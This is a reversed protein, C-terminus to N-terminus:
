WTVEVLERVRETSCDLSELYAIASEQTLSVTQDPKSLRENAQWLLMSMEYISRNPEVPHSGYGEYFAEPTPGIDKTRWLDMHVLDWSSDGVWAYEWDLLASCHWVGQAQTVLVNWPHLDNHLLCPVGRNLLPIASHLIQELKSLNIPVKHKENLERAHHMLNYVMWLGWSDAAPEVHDGIIVGQTDRPYQIGHVKRLAAGCAEWAQNREEKSLGDNLQGLMEGPMFEMLVAAQDPDTTQAIIRPVPISHDTLLHHLYIEKELRNLDPSDHPWQYQRIIYSNGGQVHATWTLNTHGAESTPEISAISISLGASELLCRALNLVDSQIM